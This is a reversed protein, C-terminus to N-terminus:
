EKAVAQMELNTSQYDRWPDAYDEVMMGIVSVLLAVCRERRTMVRGSARQAQGPRFRFHSETQEAILRRDVTLIRVTIDSLM